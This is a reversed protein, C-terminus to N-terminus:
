LNAASAATVENVTSGHAAVALAPAVGPKKLVATYYSHFFERALPLRALPGLVAALPGRGGSIPWTKFELLDCESRTLLAYIERLSLMNLSEGPRDKLTTVRDWRDVGDLKDWQNPVFDPAHQLDQITRIIARESFIAQCWPIPIYCNCHSAAHHLWGISGIWAMGGPKLLAAAQALTEQPTSFHEFCDVLLAIDAQHHSGLQHPELFRIRAAAEPFLEAAYQRGLELEGANIDLCIVESAGQAILFPARGGLGSGFDLVSKGTFDINTWFKDCFKRTSEYQWRYYVRLDSVLNAAEASIPQLRRAVNTLPKCIAYPLNLSFAM